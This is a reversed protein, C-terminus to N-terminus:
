QCKLSEVPNMRSARLAQASVTLVATALAALGAIAYVYWGVGTKYAYLDLYKGAMFYVAPWAIVNALLVWKVLGGTIMALLSGESAGLIKRVAIEKTRSEVVFSALGILGLCSIFIGLAAAWRFVGGIRTETRYVRETESDVFNFSFEYGPNVEEWKARIAAVTGEIDGPSFRVHAFNFRDPDYAMILPEIPNHLSRFNYDRVVGVISGPNDEDFVFRKGVPSEMGMKRLAEENVIYSAGDATFEESFDRGAVISLGLTEIFDHDVFEVWFTLDPQDSRKGEWDLGNRATYMWSMPSYSATVGLVGPLEAIEQKLAGYRGRVDDTMAITLLHDRDYGVDMRRMFDLQRTLIITAAILIISLTFQSVVLIRGFLYGRPDKARGGRLISAPNFGSLVLSPYVGSVFGAIVAMAAMGAFIWAGGGGALSLSKGSLGNFGPLALVVIPVSVLLAIFSLLFTECFFQQMIDHRIAGIVKRTGVEKARNASRATALNMFNICAILLILVALTAFLWVYKIDGRNGFSDSIGSSRLHIDTLPQLRSTLDAEPSYRKTYDAFKGNFAAADAKGALLVFASHSYRDWDDASGPPLLNKVYIEFPALLDAELTSNPPFDAVIGSVVLDFSGNVNITAGMPDLGAFYKEAASKTLVVSYPDSFVTSPTGKIFAHSFIEFYDPDVFEFQKEVHRKDGVALTLAGSHGIMTAREIEPFDRKMAEGLPAPAMATSYENEKDFVVRHIRDSRTHFRDFGTEDAVWLMILTCCAMGIALGLINIASFGKNRRLIRLSVRLYSSIMVLNSELMQSLSSPVASLAQRWYFRDASAAGESELIAGYEEEVDGICGFRRYAAMRELIWEAARPPRKGDKSRSM